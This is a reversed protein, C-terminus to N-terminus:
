YLVVSHDRYPEIEFGFEGHDVLKYLDFGVINGGEVDRHTALISIGEEHHLEDDVRSIESDGSLHVWEGVDYVDSPVHEYVLDDNQFISLSGRGQNRDPDAIILYDGYSQVTKGTYRDIRSQATEDRV